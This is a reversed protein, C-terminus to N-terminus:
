RSLASLLYECTCKDLTSSIGSNTLPLPEINNGTSTSSEISPEITVSAAQPKKSSQEKAPSVNQHNEIPVSQTIQFMISAEDYRVRDKKALGAFHLKINKDCTKWRRSIEKALDAFGIKGHSRRHIRKGDGSNTPTNAIEDIDKIDIANPKGNIILHRQVKFFINYASLPRRPSAPAKEKPKHVEKKTNTNTNTAAM